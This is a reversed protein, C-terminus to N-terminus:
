ADYTGDLLSKTEDNIATAHLHPPLQLAAARGSAEGDAAAIAIAVTGATGATATSTTGATGVTGATGPAGSEGARDRASWPVEARFPALGTPRHRPRPAAHPEVVMCHMQSSLKHRSLAGELCLKRSTELSSERERKFLEAQCAKADLQRELHALGAEVRSATSMVRRRGRAAAQQKLVARAGARQQLAAAQRRAGEAKHALHQLLQAQQCEDRRVQEIYISPQTDGVVRVGCPQAISPGECGLCM